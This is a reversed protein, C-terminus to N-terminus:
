SRQGFCLFLQDSEPPCVELHARAAISTDGHQFDKFKLYIDEYSEGELTMECETTFRFKMSPM